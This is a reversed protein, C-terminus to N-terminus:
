PKRLILYKDSLGFILKDNIFNINAKHIHMYEGLIAIFATDSVNEICIKMKKVIKQVSEVSFRVYM